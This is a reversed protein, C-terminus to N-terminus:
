NLEMWAKLLPKVGVPAQVQKLYGNKIHKEVEIRIETLMKKEVVTRRPTEPDSRIFEIIEAPEELIKNTQLDRLYWRTCGREVSWESEGEATKEAPGAPAPLAYCFFVARAGELPHKKGSFVRGPLSDLREKLGLSESVLKQYELHMTEIPTASGEYAHVFDKLAEYDDDPRLLKKGEIGFTKSIRLTKHSVRHYLSLLRNLDDPPLFNWFAVKGRISNAGPHDGVIKAETEPNLRRDVRGIRQMLRVPNWHLDYNILRTADQLNLGESLVDTSILVRTEALGEEKLASSSCGNYYPAFQKIVVGRDRKTTSDVEDVGGIGAKELQEKLYRATAMFESFILVKHKSLVKDSKLLRVLEKLKDDHAPKFKQLEKLFDVVLDMDLFTESLIEEVKYDDRSLQEAADIMEETVVDEDADEEEDAFLERQHNHVVGLVEDHQACWRELRRKESESKSNRTMFALFKLLLAECSLEFAKASSEFRKLFQTRILGVLQKQRNEVFPDIKSDEGKYYALPYYMALSFLDKRFFAGEVMELLKGYTKTVSYPVVKPDERTPFIAASGGNQIQSQRVYARSRQVVLAGFLSDNFLVQEAEVGSVEIPTDKGDKEELLIKELDNEMRRFHGSLSNIGLPASKFYDPRRRSFLEIMHQLDLLRNNVPTATLLYVEKGAAIEFLKWYRSPAVDPRGKVGPILEGGGMVGPNRFHHAEDIIIVDAHDRMRAFREPFEGGRNLDTHNFIVLNSFDGKLHPLYYSLGAEWVPKRAAKPVLLMVRKREHMILREILMMGIFTKGLGVGDCLFAGGYQRAIRVLSHYGDKQYQDLVPFMKSNLQDWEDASIEHNRFYEQLAKAYVEFPLYEHVQREIVRLVDESIDEAEEWHREFWAQLLEVERRLQINLEVNESLGPASFNSSGVLASSGVVALKAHTIYAKAHFRDKTYARCELTRERIADVIAPVGALFDNGEKEREISEDLKARVKARIGELIAKRTRKSVEDGMLIRIKDLKQWAGDLMLLGGIEFFGTAIDFTHAIETWERLYDRVKWESDSNDVILADGGARSGTSGSTAAKKAGADVSSGNRQSSAEGESERRVRGIERLADPNRLWLAYEDKSMGLFEHLERGEPRAHWADVYDDIEDDRAEGALYRQM